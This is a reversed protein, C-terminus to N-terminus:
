PCPGLWSVEVCLLILFMQTQACLATVQWHESSEAATLARNQKEPQGFQTLRAFCILVIRLVKGAVALDFSLGRRL